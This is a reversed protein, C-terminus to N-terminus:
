ELKARCPSNVQYLRIESQLENVLVTNSEATALELAQKATSIADLFRGSEAYAAALTRLIEPRQGGSLQNAKEALAVADSGNRVTSDPWTALIWALRSYAETFDPRLKIVKRYQVIADNERGLRDLCYGLSYCAEPYNPNLEAAKQYQVVADSFRGKRALANGLTNYADSSNPQLNVVDQYQAIAEDTEGAQILCYALNNHAKAFDPRLALAKKYQSIAASVQGKLVLANGFDNHFIPSGPELEVAKQFEILAADLHGNQLFCYGLNDYAEAFNPKLKMATQYEVAAKQIQGEGFFASALGCHADGNDPWVALSRQFQYAAEEFRRRSLFANGTLYYAMSHSEVNKLVNLGVSSALLLCYGLRMALRRRRALAVDLGLVGVVSLLMLAPLFDLEYRVQAICFMCLTTTCAAFLLVLALVLWRLNAVLTAPGNKWALPVALAFLVFLYNFFIGLDLTTMNPDYGKPLAPLPFSRIFPFHITWRAPEFFYCFFNFLFFRPSFQQPPRYDGNMQYRWGFEFPNGFRLHNYLMLGSGILMAPGIAAALLFYVHRDVRRSAQWAKVAPLLLIVIGFVLTPRAGVALGYALSAVALWRVGSKREDFARWLAALALMTLAFGCVVAIEYVRSWLILALSAGIALGSIVALSRSASPFFHRRVGCLLVTAAWVGVGLFIGVAARQSLYHGTLVAYPWFLLLAPTVGFYLYLKGRYYSLDVVNRIIAPDVAPSYPDPLKALEPPVDMKLNLQGARFGQVLRNYYSDEPASNLGFSHFPDACWVLIGAILGCLLSCIADRAVGIDIKQWISHFM